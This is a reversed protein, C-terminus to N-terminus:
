LKPVVPCGFCSVALEGPRIDSMLNSANAGMDTAVFGPHLSVVKFDENKLDNALVTTEAFLFCQNLLRGIATPRIPSWSTLPRAMKCTRCCHCFLQLTLEAYLNRLMCQLEAALVAASVSFRTAM